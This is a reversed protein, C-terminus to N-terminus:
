EMKSVDVGPFKRQLAIVEIIRIFRTGFWGSMGCLCATLHENAGEYTLFEYCLYGCFASIGCHLLLEWWVFKKGEKVKLFYHLFGGLGSVGIATVIPELESMTKLNDPM